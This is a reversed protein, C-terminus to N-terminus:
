KENEKVDQEIKSILKNNSSIFYKPPLAARSKNALARTEDAKHSELEKITIKAPVSKFRQMKFPVKTEIDETVCL